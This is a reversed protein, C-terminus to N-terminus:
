LQLQVLTLWIAFKLLIQAWLTKPLKTQILMSRVIEILTKNMREALSNQQPTMRVTKHRTIGEEMCYSDFRQNCFKLGSDIILKKM